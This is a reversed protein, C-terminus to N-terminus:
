ESLLLRRRAGPRAPLRPVIPGRRKSITARPRLRHPGKSDERTGILWGPLLQPHTLMPSAILLKLNRWSRSPTSRAAVRGWNGGPALCDNPGLDLPEGLWMWTPRVMDEGSGARGISKQVRNQLTCDAPWRTNSGSLPGLTRPVTEVTAKITMTHGTKCSWRWFSLTKHNQAKPTCHFWEGWTKAKISVRKRTQNVLLSFRHSLFFECDCLLSRVAGLKAQYGPPSSPKQNCPTSYTKTIPFRNRQM